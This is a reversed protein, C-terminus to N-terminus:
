VGGVVLPCEPLENHLQEILASKGIGAEGAVRILRGDAHRAEHAYEALSASAAGRKLLQM